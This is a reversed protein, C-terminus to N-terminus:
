ASTVTKFYNKNFISLMHLFCMCRSTGDNGADTQTCTFEFQASQQREKRRVTSFKKKIKYLICYKLFIQCTYFNTFGM